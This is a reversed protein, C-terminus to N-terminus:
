RFLEANPNPRDVRIRSFPTAPPPPLVVAL